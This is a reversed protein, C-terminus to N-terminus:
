MPCPLLLSAGRVDAPQETTDIPEPTDVLRDLGVTADYTSITTDNVVVLLGGDDSLLVAGPGSGEVGFSGLPIPPDADFDAVVATGGASFALAAPSGELRLPTLPGAGALVPLPVSGPAIPTFSETLVGLRDFPMAGGTGMGLPTNMGVMALTQGGPTVEIGGVRDRPGNSLLFSDSSISMGTGAISIHRFYMSVTVPSDFVLFGRDLSESWATRVSEFPMTSTITTTDSSDEGMILGGNGLPHLSGRLTNTTRNPTNVATVAVLASGSDVCELARLTSDANSLPVAYHQPFTATLDPGLGFVGIAGDNPEVGYLRNGCPVLLDPGVAENVLDFDADTSTSVVQGIRGEATIPTVMVAATTEGGPVGWSVLCVEPDICAQDNCLLGADCPMDDDRCSCELTGPECPDGTATTTDATTTQSTSTADGSEASDETADQTGDLSTTGTTGSSGSSGSSGTGSAPPPDTFCGVLALLCLWFTSRM